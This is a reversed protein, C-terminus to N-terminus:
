VFNSLFPDFARPRDPPPPPTGHILYATYHRTFSINLLPTGLVRANLTYGSVKSKFREHLTAKCFLLFCDPLPYISSPLRFADQPWSYTKEPVSLRISGIM